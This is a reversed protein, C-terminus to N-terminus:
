TAILNNSETLSYKISATGAPQNKEVFIKVPLYANEHAKLQVKSINNIVRLGKATQITLDINKEASTNNSIKLLVSIMDENFATIKKDTEISVPGSQAYCMTLGAM